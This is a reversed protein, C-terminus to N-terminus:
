QTSLPIKEPHLIGIGGGSPGEAEVHLPSEGALVGAMNSILRDPEFISRLIKARVAHIHLKQVHDLFVM